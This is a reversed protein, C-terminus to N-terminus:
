KESPLLKELLEKPIILNKYDFDKIQNLIELNLKKRFYVKSLSSFLTFDKNQELEEVISKVKSNPRLSYSCDIEMVSTPLYETGMDIDTNSINLVCLQKM